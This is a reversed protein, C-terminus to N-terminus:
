AANRYRSDAFFKDIDVILLLQRDLQFIGKSITRWVADVTHPTKELQRDELTLVDGIDDVILSYIEHGHEIVVSMVSAPEEGKEPARRPPLGLKRRMDIATVIRGRLNLSGAIEAPALPIRNIPQDKLVDHVMLVPIGFLQNELTLTVFQQVGGPATGSPSLAQSAMTKEKL